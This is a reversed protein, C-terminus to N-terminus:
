TDLFILQYEEYDFIEGLPRICHTIEINIIDLIKKQLQKMYMIGCKNHLSWLIFM